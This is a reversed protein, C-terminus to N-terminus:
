RYRLHGGCRRPVSQDTNHDAQDAASRCPGLSERTGPRGRRARDLVRLRPTSTTHRTSPERAGPHGTPSEEGGADAGRCEGESGAVGCFPCRCGIRPDHFGGRHDVV